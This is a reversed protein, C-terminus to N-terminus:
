EHTGGTKSKAEQLRARALLVATRLKGALADVGITDATRVCDQYGSFDGRIPADSVFQANWIGPWVGSLSSAVSQTAQWFAVCICGCATASTPSSTNDGYALIGQHYRTKRTSFGFSNKMTFPRSSQRRVNLVGGPAFQLIQMPGRHQLIQRHWRAVPQLRGLAPAFPPVADADVVLPADAKHPRRAVRVVHFNHVVM